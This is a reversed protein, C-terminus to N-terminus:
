RRKKSKRSRHSKGNSVRHWNSTCTILSLEKLMVTIKDGAAFTEGYDVGSLKGGEFQYFDVGIESIHIFGELMLELIEFFFGFSKIRTIVAEYQRRPNEKYFSELLRYKKLLVVSGEAKASIRERESCRDAIKELARVDSAKEFILRHAVLDVYRRIPSTFHCYHTLALGFHGINVPSYIALRMRRIYSTALYEGSPTEMAEEFLRQVDQPTPKPALKFGFANALLAFDRMNEESPEDHVRFPVGKGEVDLHRAVTENAKLMFEEVLQHTIDYAVYDTGTPAGKKM